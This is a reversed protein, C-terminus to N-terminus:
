QTGGPRAARTGIAYTVVNVGLAVAAEHDPDEAGQWCGGLFRPSVLVGPRGNVEIAHLPFRKAVGSASLGYCAVYVPHTEPLVAPATGFIRTLEERVTDGFEGSSGDVLIVGGDQVYAKLAARQAETLRTPGTESWYLLPADARAREPPVADQASLRLATRGNVERILATMSAGGRSGPLALGLPVAYAGRVGAHPGDAVLRTGNSGPAPEAEGDPTGAGADRSKPETGAPTAAGDPRAQPDPGAGAMESQPQGSSGATPGPTEPPAGDPKGEQPAPPSAAAREQSPEGATPVEGAAASVPLGGEGPMTAAPPSAEFGPRDPLSAFEGAAGPASGGPPAEPEEHPGAADGSDVPQNGLTPPTEPPLPIAAPLMAVTRPASVTPHSRGHSQRVGDQPLGPLAPLPGVIGPLPVNWLPPPPADPPAPVVPMPLTHLSMPRFFDARLAALRARQAETDPAPRVTEGAQPLTLRVRTAPLSVPLSRASVDEWRVVRVRTIGSVGHAGPPAIVGPLAALGVAHIMVSLILSKPLGGRARRM